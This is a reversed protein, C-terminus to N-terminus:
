TEAALADVVEEPLKPNFRIHSLDEEGAMDYRDLLVQWRPDTMIPGYLDTEAKAARIISPGEIDVTRQLYEFALDHRGTWSAVRAIVEPFQDPDALMEAFELDFEERRGLDHLALLRGLKRNYPSSKKFYVIAKAPEGAVLWAVGLSWYITPTGEWWELLKELEEALERHRGTQRYISSLLRIGGTGAPDRNVVYRALMAAEDTRGLEFLFGAAVGLQTYLNSDVAAAVARERYLAAAQLDGDRRAFHGLWGNAYSSDPALQVLRDVLSRVRAENLAREEANGWFWNANTARTLEWIAPVYDPALEVARSLREIAMDVMAKASEETQDRTHLYHRGQLYLDYAVPDIDDATPPGALLEIKLQDVVSASIEDQIAFVDELTRDYTESWLHRDARADILQATVRIQNGYKRVSGELIHSVDLKDRIEAVDIEKGKFTWSTSRSIVRLEEIRALLNLLEESIGDAFYDQNADASINLFPLVLISRDAYKQLLSGTLADAVAEASAAEIEEQDRLPDFVFKDVAFYAVATLLTLMIARDLWRSDAVPSEPTAAGDRKIGQPTWEFIWSLIVAPLFGIAVIVVTARFLVPPLIEPTLTDVVQILLWAGALYALAVRHVNRQRLQDFMADM